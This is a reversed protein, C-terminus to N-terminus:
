GRKRHPFDIVKSNLLRKFSRLGDLEKIPTIRLIDAVSIRGDIRSLIFGDAPDLNLHALADPGITVVPVDSLVFNQEYIARRLGETVKLLEDFLDKRGPNAVSLVQLIEMAEGWRGGEASLRAEELKRVLRKERDGVSTLESRMLHKRDLLEDIARYIKYRSFPLFEMLDTVSHAGNVMALVKRAVAEDELPPHRQIETGATEFVSQPHVAANIRNWVDVRRVGEAVVRIPDLDIALFGKSDFPKPQFAFEGDKWLFIDCLDEMMKQTLTSIAQSETILKERVLISALMAGTSTQIAMARDIDSETLLGLHVLFAGYIERPDNTSSFVIQGNRFSVRVEKKTDSRAVLLGTRQATRGWQIVDAMSMTSFKGQVSM